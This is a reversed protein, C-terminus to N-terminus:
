HLIKKFCDCYRNIKSKEDETLKAFDFFYDECIGKIIEDNSKLPDFVSSFGSKVMFIPYSSILNLNFNANIKEDENEIYKLLNDKIYNAFNLIKEYVLDKNQDNNNEM